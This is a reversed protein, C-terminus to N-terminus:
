EVKHLASGGGGGRPPPLSKREVHWGGKESGEEISRKPQTSSNRSQIQATDIPLGVLTAALWVSNSIYRMRTLQMKCDKTNSALQHAKCNSSFSPRGTALLIGAVSCLLIVAQRVSSSAM